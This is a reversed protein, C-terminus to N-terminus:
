KKSIKCFSCGIKICEASVEQNCIDAKYNCVLTLSTEKM